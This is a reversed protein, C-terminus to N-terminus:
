KSWALKCNLRKIDKGLIDRLSEHEKKEGIISFFLIGEVFGLEEKGAFYIPKNQVYVKIINVLLAINPSSGEIKTVRYHVTIDKPADINDAILKGLDKLSYRKKM